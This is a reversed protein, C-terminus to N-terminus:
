DETGSHFVAVIRGGLLAIRRLAAQLAPASLNGELVNVNSVSSLQLEPVTHALIVPEIDAVHIEYHGADLRSRFRRREIQPRPHLTAEAADLALTTSLIASLEAHLYWDHDASTTDRALDAIAPDVELRRTPVGTLLLYWGVDRRPRLWWELRGV